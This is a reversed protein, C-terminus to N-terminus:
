DNVLPHRSLVTYKSREGGLESRIVRLEEITVATQRFPLQKHALALRRADEPRRLRALTIHPHFPREERSFGLNACENELRSHLQRLTDTTDNIGIWLVRPPGHSPFVGSGELTIPFSPLRQVAQKAAESLRDVVSRSIDGLFKLTLHINGDHGWSAKAEPVSKQLKEIHSLLQQQAEAPIEIACFVRWKVDLTEHVSM